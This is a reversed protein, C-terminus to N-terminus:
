VDSMSTVYSDADSDSYGSYSSSSYSSDDSSVMTFVEPSSARKFSDAHDNALDHEEIKGHDQYKSSRRSDQSTMIIRREPFDFTFDDDDSEDSNLIKTNSLSPRWKPEHVVLTEHLTSLSKCDTADSTRKKVPRSSLDKDWGQKSRRRMNALIGKPERTITTPAPQSTLAIATKLIRLREEDIEFADDSDSDSWVMGVSATKQKEIKNTEQEKRGFLDLFSESKERPRKTASSVLSLTHIEPLRMRTGRRTGPISALKTWRDEPHRNVIIPLKSRIEKSQQKLPIYENFYVDYIEQQVKSLRKNCSADFADKRVLLHKHFVANKHHAKLMRESGTMADTNWQERHRFSASIRRM